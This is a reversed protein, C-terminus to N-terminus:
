PADGAWRALLVLGADGSILTVVAVLGLMWDDRIVSLVLLIMPLRVSLSGLCAIRSMRCSTRILALTALLAAVEMLDLALDAATM